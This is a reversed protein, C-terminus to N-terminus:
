GRLGRIMRVTAIERDFAEPDFHGGVWNTLDRHEEHKPDALVDLLHEYGPVGGCDEPPCAREGELCLPYRVKPDPKPCGEFLVEHEWDDGMDYTYEVKLKKGGAPLLDSLMIRTSDIVRSGLVPDDLWKPIGYRQRGIIFHHLHCNTWGMAAQIHYHLTNLKCDPIQIRRWITPKTDLLTIKFQYIQGTPKEAKAKRRNHRVLNGHDDEAFLEAVQSHVSRLLPKM